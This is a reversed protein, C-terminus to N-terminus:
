HFLHVNPLSVNSDPLPEPHRDPCVVPISPIGLLAAEDVITQGRRTEVVYVTGNRTVMQGIVNGRVTRGNPLTIKAATPSLPQYSGAPNSAPTQAHSPISLGCFAATLVLVTFRRTNM